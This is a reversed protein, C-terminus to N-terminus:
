DLDDVNMENSTSASLAPKNLGCHKRNLDNMDYESINNLVQNKSLDNMQRRSLFADSVNLDNLSVVNYIALKSQSDSGEFINTESKSLSITGPSGPSMTKGDAYISTQGSSDGTSFSDVSLLSANKQVRPPKADASPADDDCVIALPTTGIPLHCSKPRAASNRSGLLGCSVRETPNYVALPKCGNKASLWDFRGDPRKGDIPKIHALPHLTHSSPHDLTCISQRKSENAHSKAGLNRNTGVTAATNTTALSQQCCTPCKTSHNTAYNTDLINGISHNRKCANAGSKAADASKCLQNKHQTKGTSSTSIPAATSSFSHSAASEGISICM